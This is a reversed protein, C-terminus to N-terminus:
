RPEANGFILRRKAGRMRGCRERGLRAAEALDLIEIRPRTLELLDVDAEVHVVHLERVILIFRQVAVAGEATRNSPDLRPHEVLGAVFAGRLAPALWVDVDVLVSLDIGGDIARNGGVADVADNWM